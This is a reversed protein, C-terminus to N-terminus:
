ASSSQSQCDHLIRHNNMPAADRGLVILAASQLKHKCQSFLFLADALSIFSFYPHQKLFYRGERRMTATLATVYIHQSSFSFFYFLYFTFFLDRLYNLYSLFANDKHEMFHRQSEKM